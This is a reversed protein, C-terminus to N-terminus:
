TLIELHERRLAVHYKKANDHYQQMRQQLRQEFETAAIAIQGHVNPDPYVRLVFMPMGNSYSVFDCWKRETVFLGTQIQLMFESPLVGEIITQVQYKQARSKVEILGDDGVLGDPSYGLRFGLKDTEIFACQEVPAYKEAYLERAYNEEDEGRLMADSIYQPDVHNNIRQALLEFLLQREKDNAAIKLTPTLIRDMVSATLIGCRIQLWEGSGQDFDNHHTITM